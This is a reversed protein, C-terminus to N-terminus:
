GGPWGMKRLVDFNDKPEKSKKSEADRWDAPGIIPFDPPGAKGWQGSVAVQSYIANIQMANLRRDLTWVRQDMVAEIRPDLLLPPAESNEDKRDVEMSAVFRSGEPLNRIM